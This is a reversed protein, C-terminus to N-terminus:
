VCPIGYRAGCPVTCTRRTRDGLRNARSADILCDSWAMSEYFSQYSPDPCYGQSETWERFQAGPFTQVHVPDNLVTSLGFNRASQLYWSQWDPNEFVVDVAAGYQHQSCGPPVAQLGSGRYLEFQEQATRNVSTISHRGGYSNAVALIYEVAWAMYPHTNRLQQRASLSM